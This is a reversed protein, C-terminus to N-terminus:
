RVFSLKEKFFLLVFYLNSLNVIIITMATSIAAGMIGFQSILVFGSIISLFAGLLSINRVINENGTMNLLIAVSGTLVNIVQAFCLIRLVFATDVYSEGFVSLVLEAFYAVAIVLPLTLLSVFIASKKFLNFLQHYEKKFHLEAFKPAVIFNVSILFLSILMGVRQSSSFLAVASEDVFYALLFQSNWQTLQSCILIIFFPLSCSLFEFVKNSFIFLKFRRVFFVLSVTATLFSSFLFLLAFFYANDVGLLTSLSLLISLFLFNQFFVGFFANNRAQFIISVFFHICNFFLSIYFIWFIKDVQFFLIISIFGILFFFLYIFISNIFLNLELSIETTSNIYKLLYTDLGYRYNYSLFSFVAFYLLILGAVELTFTNTVYVTFLFSLFASALRFVSSSLFLSLLSNKLKM